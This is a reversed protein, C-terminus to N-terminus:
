RLVEGTVADIIPGEDTEPRYGLTFTVDQNSGGRTAIYILTLPNNQFYLTEAQERTLVNKCEPMSDGAPTMTLDSFFGNTKGSYKDMNLYVTRDHLKAGNRVPVLQVYHPYVAYFVEKEGAFYWKAFDTARKKVESEDDSGNIGDIRNYRNENFEAIEQSDKFVALEVVREGSKLPKVSDVLGPATAWIYRTKRNYTDAGKPPDPVYTLGKLDVNFKERLIQEAEKPSKVTTKQASGTLVIRGQQLIDDLYSIPKGTKADISRFNWPFYGLFHKRAPSKRFFDYDDYYYLELPYQAKYAKLAEEPTLIKDPKPFRSGDPKPQSYSETISGNRVTYQVTYSSTLPINNVLQPLILNVGGTDKDRYASQPAIGKYQPNRQVVAEYAKKIEEQSVDIKLPIRDLISVPAPNTAALVPSPLTLTAAILLVVMKKNKRIRHFVMSVKREIKSHNRSRFLPNNATKTAAPAAQHQWKGISGSAACFYAAMLSTKEEVDM